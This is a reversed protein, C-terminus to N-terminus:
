KSKLERALFARWRPPPLEAESPVLALMFLLLGVTMYNQLAPPHETGSSFFAFGCLWLAVVLTGAHANRLPRWFALLGFLVVLTGCILDNAWWGTQEPPHRFIFPSVVLWLGMMVEAVRAWM